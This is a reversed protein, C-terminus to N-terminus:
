EFLYNQQVGCLRMIRSHYMYATYMNDEGDKVYYGDLSKVMKSYNKGKPTVVYMNSWDSWVKKNNVIKYARYRVYFAGQESYIARTYGNNKYNNYNDWTANFKKDVAKPVSLTISNVNKTITKTIRYKTPYSITVIGKHDNDETSTLSVRTSLIIQYGDADDCKTWSIKVKKNSLATGKLKADSFQIPMNLYTTHGDTCNNNACDRYYGTWGIYDGYKDEDDIYKLPQNKTAYKCCNLDCGAEQRVDWWNKAYVDSPMITTMLTVALLISFLKKFNNKM